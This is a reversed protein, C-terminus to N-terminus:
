IKKDDRDARKISIVFDCVIYKNVDMNFSKNQINECGKTKKRNFTHFDVYIVFPHKILKLGHSYKWM